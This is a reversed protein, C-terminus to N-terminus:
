KEETLVEAMCMRAAKATTQKKTNVAQARVIHGCVLFGFREPSSDIMLEFKL